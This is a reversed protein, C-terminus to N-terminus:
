IVNINDDYIFKNINNYILIKREQLFLFLIL